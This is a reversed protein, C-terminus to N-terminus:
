CFSGWLNLSRWWNKNWNPKWTWIGGIIHDGGLEVLYNRERYNPEIFVLARFYKFLWEFRSGLLIAMKNNNYEPGREIGMNQLWESEWSHKEKPPTGGKYRDGRQGDRLQAEEGLVHLRNCLKAGWGKARGEAQSNAMRRIGWAVDACSCPSRKEEDKIPAPLASCARTTQHEVSPQLGLAMHIKLTWYWGKVKHRWRKNNQKISRKNVISPVCKISLLM